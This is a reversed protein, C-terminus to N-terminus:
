IYNLEADSKRLYAPGQNIDNIGEFKANKVIELLERARGSHYGPDVSINGASFCSVLRSHLLQAGGGTLLIPEGPFDIAKATEKALAEPSSDSYDTLRKGHRYLAAFFCGKKADIVPLVIGPWMSFPYALCDLTSVAIMPIGLAMAIGKAASFGIRLGTFSGPGKMCCVLNLDCPSLSSNKCLGDACELLFESHTPGAEIETYWVGTKAALAVSLVKDSSDFSLINM